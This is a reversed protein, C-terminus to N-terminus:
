PDLGAAVVRRLMDRETFIGLLRGDADAVVAAAVNRAVMQRAAERATQDPGVALLEQRAIIDKIRRNRM